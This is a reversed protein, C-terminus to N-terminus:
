PTDESLDGRGHFIALITVRDDQLLYVIRYPAVIRERVSEDEFEPVRRGARPFERLETVAERIRDRIRRAASPADAAIYDVIELLQTRARETWLIRM